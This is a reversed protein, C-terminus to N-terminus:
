GEEDVTRLHQAAQRPRATRTIEDLKGEFRSVRDTLEAHSELDAISHAQIKDAISTLGVSLVATREKETERWNSILRLALQYGVAIVFGAIGLQLIVQSLNM